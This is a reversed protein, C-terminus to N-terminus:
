GLLLGLALGIAFWCASLLVGAWVLPWINFRDRPTRHHIMVKGGARHLDQVNWHDAIGTPRVSQDAEWHYGEPSGEDAVPRLGPRWGEWLSWAEVDEPRIEM